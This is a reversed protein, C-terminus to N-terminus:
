GPISTGAGTTASTTPGSPAAVDFGPCAERIGEIIQVPVADPTDAVESNLDKFQDFPVNQVMWDYACGCVEESLGEGLVTTSTGIVAVKTCGQLWNSRTTDDYETPANSPNSCGAVLAALVLAAGALRLRKVPRIM